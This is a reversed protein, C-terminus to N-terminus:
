RTHDTDREIYEGELTRGSQTRSKTSSTPEHEFVQGDTDPTAHRKRLWLPILMMLGLVDSVPGPLVLLVGAMLSASGRALASLQQPGQMMGMQMQQLAHLGERRILQIGAVASGIVLVLTALAGFHSAFMILAIIDVAAYVALMLLIPM